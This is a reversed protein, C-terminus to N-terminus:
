FLDSGNYGMSRPSSYEVLPLPEIANVGLAALYEVRDLIDLMKAVRHARDPGYWTGIHLQYVILDSFDPTRWGDDHWPYSTASRVICDPNPWENTLERAYPDRKDGSKGRGVVHFKYRYGDKVGPVFGTWAGDEDPVLLSSDTLANNNFEGKVYVKRARPAWVKFTCGGDVLNAGPQTGATINQQSAPM